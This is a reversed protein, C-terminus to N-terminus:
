TIKTFKYEYIGLLESVETSFAYGSEKLERVFASLTNGHVSEKQKTEFGKKLLEIKLLAAKEDEGKGFSSIVENKIIGGHNNGRLWAFAKAKRPETISAKVKPIVSIVRGSILTFSKLSIEDMLSPFQNQSIERLKKAEVDLQDSLIKVKEEQALQLEALEVVRKLNEDSPIAIEEEKFIDSDEGQEIEETEM